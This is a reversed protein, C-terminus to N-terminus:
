PARLPRARAAAWLPYVMPKPSGDYLRLGMSGFAKMLVEGLFQTDTSGSAAAGRFVDVV